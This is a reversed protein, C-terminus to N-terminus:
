ISSRRRELVIIQIFVTLGSPRGCLAATQNRQSPEFNKMKLMGLVCFTRLKRWFVFTTSANSSVFFPSSTICTSPFASNSSFLLPTLAVRGAKTAFYSRINLLIPEVGSAIAASYECAIRIVGVFNRAGTSYNYM